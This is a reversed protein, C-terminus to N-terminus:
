RADFRLSLAAGLVVFSSIPMIVAAVLPNILGAMALGIAVTNYCLSFGLARHIARLTRRSLHVLQEFPELGPRALYVDAAMLSAEAGGHVAVGLNAAALAAADNVGDGIMVVPGNRKAEQVAAVKEEPDIGGRADDFALGLREGIDGVVAPDDGSLLAVRWGDRVLRAVVAESGARIADGCAAVAEVRNEIAILVPSLHEARAGDIKQQTSRDWAVGRAAIFDPTGIAFSQQNCLATIGSAQQMVDTVTECADEDLAALARGVPHTAHREISAVAARLTDPGHWHVVRTQGATVTGTKDFLITAGGRSFRALRELADGGKVMIDNKAAKGIAVAITLPTALGLACPCAVILLAVTHDLARAPDLVLWLGATVAAFAIVGLVFWGAIRDTLQVIPSRAAAFEAVMAMLRGVRTESGSANVSMVLPSVLNTAGATISEGVGVTVPRSEGTLLAQNIESAGELVAGDAPITEGPDIRVRDGTRLAEVPVDVAAGSENLRHCSGPTLSFLLEIADGARRQQRHQVFRGVLLLFVLVGLTDFYLEGTGSVVHYVGAAGGVGLALAIPLDLHATRTRLAAIAGRFFVAGPWALSVLGIGMSLWRFLTEYQAEMGGFWGAYLAFALLMLNGACAGAVAIRILFRRDERRRADQGARGRAPHPPYGLRDLARAVTPLDVVREDWRLRAQSTGLSLRAEIVGPVVRPLKEVLWVCAACHVGALSLDISSVGQGAPRCYLERFTPDAFEEYRRHTTVSRVPTNDSDNCVQYFADLGHERIMHYVTHCGSCCFQEAADPEILGRPVSLGCHACAAESAGDKPTPMEAVSGEWEHTQTGDPLPNM